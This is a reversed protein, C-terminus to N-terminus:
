VIIFPNISHIAKFATIIPSSIHVFQHALETRVGLLKLFFLFLVLTLGRWKKKFIISSLHTLTHYLLPPPSRAPFSLSPGFKRDTYRYPKKKEQFRNQMDDCWIGFCIAKNKMSAGRHPGACRIKFRGRGDSNKECIASKEIYVLFDQFRSWYVM